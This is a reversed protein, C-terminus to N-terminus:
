VGHPYSVVCGRPYMWAVHELGVVEDALSFFGAVQGPKFRKVRGACPPSVPPTFVLKSHLHSDLLAVMISDSLGTISRKM